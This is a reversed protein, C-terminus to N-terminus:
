KFSLHAGKLEDWNGRSEGETGFSVEYSVGEVEFNIHASSGSGAEEEEQRGRVLNSEGVWWGVSNWKSHDKGM